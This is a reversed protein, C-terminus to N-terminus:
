YTSLTPETGRKLEGKEEFITVQSYRRTVKVRVTLSVNFHSEDSCSKVCFDNQYHCHLTLCLDGGGGGGFSDTGAIDLLDSSSSVCDVGDVCGLLGSDHVSFNVIVVCFMEGGVSPIGDTM